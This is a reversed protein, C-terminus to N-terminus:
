VFIFGILLISNITVVMNIKLLQTCSFFFLKDKM